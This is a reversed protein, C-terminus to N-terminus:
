SRLWRRLVKNRRWKLERESNKYVTKYGPKQPFSIVFSAANANQFAARLLTNVDEAASAIAAQRKYHSITSTYAM